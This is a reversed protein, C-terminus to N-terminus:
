EIRFLAYRFTYGILGYLFQKVICRSGVIGWSERDFVEGLRNREPQTVGREDSSLKLVFPANASIPVRLM